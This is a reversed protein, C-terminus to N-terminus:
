TAGDVGSTSLLHLWREAPELWRQTGASAEGRPATPRPQLLAAGARLLSSPDGARVAGLYARVARGRQGLRLHSWALWRYISAPDAGHRAELIRAEELM